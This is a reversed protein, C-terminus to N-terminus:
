GFAGAAARGSGEGGGGAAGGRDSRRALGERETAEAALTPADGRRPRSRRGGRALRCAGRAARPRGAAPAEPLPPTTSAPRPPATTSTSTSATTSSSAATACRCGDGGRLAAELEQKQRAARGGDRAAAAGRRRARENAERLQAELLLRGGVGGEARLLAEQAGAALAAADLLVTAENIKEHTRM